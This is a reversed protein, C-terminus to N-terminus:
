CRSRSLCQRLLRESREREESAYPHTSLPKKPVEREMVDMIKKIAEPDNIEIKREFTNTAMIREGKWENKFIM